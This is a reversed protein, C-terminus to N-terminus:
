TASFISLRNTSTKLSHLFNASQLHFQIYSREPFIATLCAALAKSSLSSRSTTDADPKSPKLARLLQNRLHESQCQPTLRQRQVTIPLINTALLPLGNGPLPNPEAKCDPSRPRYRPRRGPISCSPFRGALKSYELSVPTTSETQLSDFLVRGSLHWPGCLSKYPVPTAAQPLICPYIELSIPCNKLIESCLLKREGLIIFSNM